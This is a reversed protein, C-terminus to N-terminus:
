RSREKNIYEWIRELLRLREGRKEPDTGIESLHDLNFLGLDEGFRQSKESVIGDGREIDAWWAFFRLSLHCDDDCVCRASAYRVNPRPAFREDNEKLYGPRHEDIFPLNRLDYDFFIRMLWYLLSGRDRHDAAWDAARTGQHPTGVTVLMRVQPLRFRRLALRADLGGQSHAILTARGNGVLLGIREKLLRASEAITLNAPFTIRNVRCGREQFFTRYESFYEERSIFIASGGDVGLAGAILLIHCQEKRVKEGPGTVIAYM